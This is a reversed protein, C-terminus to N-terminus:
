SRKRAGLGKLIMAWVRDFARDIDPDAWEAAHVPNTFRSTADKGAQAAAEADDVVFEGRAVGDRIIQAIQAVLEDVHARVVDRAEAALALYTAFLEPDDQARRRKAAM